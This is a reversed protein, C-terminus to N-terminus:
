YHFKWGLYAIVERPDAYHTGGFTNSNDLLYRRNTVNLASVKLSLNGFSKGAALDFTTHPPLHAPGNGDVFGSGYNVNAGAWATAGIQMTAGASLTNRQDHDLFFWGGEPPSFDTLGGTVAGAGEARQHSFALHFQVRETRPSAVTAEYGRVYVRDITLPLFLNSNGLVDHDFFNHAHNQFADANFTWGAWPVLVGAEATRDREGRLPLFGFGQSVALQALPGSVTTLPPPQYTDSYSARLVATGLRYTAGLRPSVATETLAGAFRTARVGARLSLRSTVDVADELFLASVNGSPAISQSLAFGSGDNAVISFRQQDHQQFGYVGARIQNAGITGSLEAQMGLYRSDHRDSTSIPDLPGGQLDALNDHFFPSATLLLNPSLTRLWSTNVFLDHERQQDRIGQAQAAPDNPIQYLDERAAGAFRFQDTDTPLFILSTFLGGGTAQDHLVQAVPTELGVNSRNFNASTYYAFRDTHSGINFQNDTSAQTGGGLLLDAENTREFGTRPVVNFVAYTRDGYESSLGGRQVELYDVDKPDFQPGVNSAINTNPVPVGDIMWTVQHGGRVHLQDHVVYAGPVYDTIMSLSNTRSAGPTEAIQIRSVTTRTTASRPEVVEAPASVSINESLQLPLQLDVSMASGSAVSVFRPATALGSATASLEYNGLPVLTFRYDGDRNSDSSRQWQGHAARLTVTARAIPHGQADHVTGRLMGFITAQSSVAILFVFSAVAIRRPHNSFM